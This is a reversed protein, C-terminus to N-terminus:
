VGFMCKPAATSYPRCNRVRVRDGIKFRASLTVGTGEWPAKTGPIEVTKTEATQM